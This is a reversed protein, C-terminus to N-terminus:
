VNESEKRVALTLADDLRILNAIAKKYDIVTDIQDEISFNDICDLYGSQIKYEQRAKLYEVAIERSRM